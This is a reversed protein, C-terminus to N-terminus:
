GTLCCIAPHTSGKAFGMATRWFMIPIGEGKSRGRGGEGEEKARRAEASVTASRAEAYVTAVLSTREHLVLPGQSRWFRSGFIRGQVSMAGCLRGRGEHFTRIAIQEHQRRTSAQKRGRHGLNFIATASKIQESRFRGGPMQM